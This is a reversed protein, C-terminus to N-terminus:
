IQHMRLFDGADSGALIRNNHCLSKYPDSDSIQIRNPSKVFGDYKHSFEIKGGRKKQLYLDWRSEPVKMADLEEEDGIFLWKEQEKLKVFSNNQIEALSDLPFDMLNGIQIFAFYLSGYEEPSPRRLIKVAEVISNLAKEPESNKIYVEAEISVKAGFTKLLSVHTEILKKAEAYKGRRMWATTTQALLIGKNQENLLALEESNALIGEGLKTVESFKELSFNASFLKLKMELIARSDKEYQLLKEVLIIVYDWAEKKEAVALTPICEVYSLESLDLSKLISFAEDIEGEEYNLLLSLKEKQISGDDPLTQIIKKRLEPLEKAFVTFNIAISVDELLFSVAKDYEKSEIDAIFEECDKRNIEAFFRKGDTFLSDRYLFQLILVRALDNSIPKEADKLYDLLKTFHRPHPEISSFFGSLVRDIAHDFYCSMFLALTEKATEGLLQRSNQAMYVHLKKINLYVQNRASLGGWEAFKQQATQIEDLFGPGDDQVKNESDELFLEQMLFDLRANYNTFKEPNLSIARELFSKARVRDGSMEIFLAYIRYFDAKKRPDKPFGNEDIKSVDIRNGLRFERILKELRLLWHNADIQEAKKLLDDNKEFDDNHLHIEALYLPARADEPYREFISEFRARAEKVKELRQLTRAESLEYDLLLDEDNQDKIISQINELTKSVFSANGRDLEIELKELHERAIQLANRFDIDFGLALLQKSDLNFLIEELDRPTFIEFEINPNGRKLEARAKELEISVGTYKDNFVLNYQNVESIENWNKRLTEFDDKFKQAADADKEAPNLPAYVQYYIGEAPRYGDNGGDGRNGYSRIKKFGSGFAKEMIEEFFTQYETASKQHVKVTFQLSLYHKDRPEM